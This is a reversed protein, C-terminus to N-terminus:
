PSLSRVRRPVDIDVLLPERRRLVLLALRLGLALEAATAAPADAPFPTGM